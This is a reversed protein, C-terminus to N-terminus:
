INEEALRIAEDKNYCWVGQNIGHESRKDTIIFVERIAHGRLDINDHLAENYRDFNDNLEMHCLRDTV